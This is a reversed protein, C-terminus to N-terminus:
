SDYPAVERVSRRSEIGFHRILRGLVPRVGNSSKRTIDNATTMECAGVGRKGRPRADPRASIALPQPIHPLPTSKM